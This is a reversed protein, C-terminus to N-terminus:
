NISVTILVNKQIPIETNKKNHGFKKNYLLKQHKDFERVSVNYDLNSNSKASIKLFSQDFRDEIFSNIQFIHPVYSSLRLKAEVDASSTNSGLTLVALIYLYKKM